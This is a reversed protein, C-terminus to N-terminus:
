EAQINYARNMKLGRSPKEVNVELPNIASM